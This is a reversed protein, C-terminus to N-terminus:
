ILLLALFLGALIGLKTYLPCYKECEKKVKEYTIKTTEIKNKITDVQNFIDTKGLGKFFIYLDDKEQETLIKVNKFLEQKTLENEENISQIYNDLLQIFDKNSYNKKAEEIITFLKKASFSIDTKLGQLFIQYAYFFKKRQMYGLSIGFGVFGCLVVLLLILIIKM